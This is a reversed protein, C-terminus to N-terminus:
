SQPQQQKVLEKFDMTDGASPETTDVETGYDSYFVTSSFTGDKTEGKETKKVLLDEDDVWIDVKETKLGAQDLQKKLASLQKADLDSSKGALDAVDVTGSYHTADVGRVKEDGVKKVDGSALLMKVSQNPTTNEMQDKLYEGSAGAMQALTEYDYKIWHKGGAQKAFEDGMNAYYADPLYRYDISSGGLQKMQQAMAGGTFNVKMDGVVGKNWSMAGNMKMSMQSGMVTTGEIKSSEAKDTTDAVTRLAALPSFGGGEKKGSSGKDGGKASSGGDGDSSGGCAAVGTLAAAAVLSVCARRLARNTM